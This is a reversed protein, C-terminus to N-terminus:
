VIRHLEVQLSCIEAIFEDAHAMTTKGAPTTFTENMDTASDFWLEVFGDVPLDAYSAVGHEGAPRIVVDQAYGRVQPLRQVLMAHTGAWEERFQEPNLHERRKLTSMRKVLPKGIPAPVIVNQEVLTLKFSGIFRNADEGGAKWADSTMARQMSEIDDFWLQSYGDIVHPARHKFIGRQPADVVHNQEYRRLGPIKAILPGHTEIWHQRFAETTLGEKKRIVGTRIIM